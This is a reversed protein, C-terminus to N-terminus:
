SFNKIEPQKRIIYKFFLGVKINNDSKAIVKFYRVSVYTIVINNGKGTHPDRRPSVCVSDQRVLPPRKSAVRDDEVPLRLLDEYIGAPM